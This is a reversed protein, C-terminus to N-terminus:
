VPAQKGDYVWCNRQQATCCTTRGTGAGYVLEIPNLECHGVPLRLCDCGFKAALVDTQYVSIPNSRKILDFLEVKLMKPEQLIKHKALWDIMDQKRSSKTPIGEIVINHYRANDPVIVSQASCNPLLKHEFWEMFHSINMENHYDGTDKGGVFGVRCRTDM